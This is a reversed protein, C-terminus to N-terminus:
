SLGSGAFLVLMQVDHRQWRQAECHPYVRHQERHESLETEAQVSGLGKDVHQLLRRYAQM